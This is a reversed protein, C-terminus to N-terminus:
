SYDATELDGLRPADIPRVVVKGAKVAVCRVWTDAEILMGESLCDVRRGDFDVVGAPRLPSTAKGIRGKLMDLEALGPLDAITSAADHEGRLMLRRGMPTLPYVYYMFLVFLPVSLAVGVLTIAGEQRSGYYFVMGIGVIDVFIAAAILVGHSPLALEGFLLLFGIGILIFGLTDNEM